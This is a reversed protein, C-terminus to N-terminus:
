VCSQQRQPCFVWLASLSHISVLQLQSTCGARFLRETANCWVWYPLIGRLPHGSGHFLNTRFCAIRRCVDFHMDCRYAVGQLLPTECQPFSQIRKEHNYIFIRCYNSSAITTRTNRETRTKLASIIGVYFARLPVIKQACKCIIKHKKANKKIKYTIKTYIASLLM